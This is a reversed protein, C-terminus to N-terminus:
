FECVPLIFGNRVEKGYRPCVVPIGVKRYQKLMGAGFSGEKAQQWLSAGVAKERHSM